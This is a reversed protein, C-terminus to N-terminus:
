SIGRGAEEKIAELLASKNEMAFPTQDGAAEYRYFAIGDIGLERLYDAARLVWAGNDPLWGTEGGIVHKCQPNVETAFVPLERFRSPVMELSTVVTNLHLYQWQLPWDGFKELSRIEAVNNTQTKCHLFLANAGAIHDLIYRWWVSNDSNPGFYPDIPPPGIKARGAVGNWVANYANSVYSPTLTFIGGSGFGPWEQRNNPENWLQWYDVGRSNVITDVVAQVHAELDQSRPLTGTGDAYGWVLRCIVTIGKEQLHVYDLLRPVRQVQAHTVCLGILGQGVMWEGGTQDHLGVLMPKKPEEVGLAKRLRRYFEAKWGSRWGPCATKSHDDHGTITELEIEMAPNQIAWKCVRVMADLMPEPPWHKDLNGELGVPLRREPMVGLHRVMRDLKETLLIEGTQTIWISYQIGPVTKAEKQFACYTATAHPSSSLTHHLVLGKWLETQEPWEGNKDLEASIDRDWITPEMTRAFELRTLPYRHGFYEVFPEEDDVDYIIAKGGEGSPCKVNALRGADDYAAVTGFSERAIEHVADYSELTQAPVHVTVEYDVTPEDPESPMRANARDKIAVMYDILGQEYVQGYDQDDWGANIGGTTFPLFAVLYPVQSAKEDYWKFRELAAAPDNYKAAYFESIVLPIVENREALLRYLYGSRFCYAGAGEVPPAGPIPEGYGHDIPKDEWVIGEHLALIHGGRKARGFVGTEVMAVMEDWEPTGNNLSFLALKLGVAEAKEM